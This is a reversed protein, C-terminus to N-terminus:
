KYNRVYESLIYRILMSVSIKRRDAIDCLVNYQENTIRINLKNHLNKHYM